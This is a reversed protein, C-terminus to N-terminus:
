ARRLPAAHRWIGVLALAAGLLWLAPPETVTIAGFLGDAQGNIGDTFFLIDPGGNKGGTGFDLAWLGGPTNGTGVDIPLTGEYADTVPNFANIESLDYSFNGVLLDGSLTGFGTSPALAIGWPAALHDNTFSSLLVGSENFVAVGGDGPGASIEAAEGAPAYTVYVNGGIDQVNFPLWGKSAFPNPFEHSCPSGCPAFNSLFVDVTGGANDVAYLNTQLQNIALGTFVAGPTTAPTQIFATPGGNWASITGNLNAFIFHAPSDPVGNVDFALANTNNVQGTPGQPGTGTTPITIDGNTGKPMVKTVALSSTVSYLTATNSGQDSIWVPSTPSHSVGWSNLLVPDTLEALGSIDSVLNTQIYNAKAEGAFGGLAVVSAAALVSSRLSFAM